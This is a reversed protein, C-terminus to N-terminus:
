RTDDGEQGRAAGPKGPSGSRGHSCPHRQSVPSVMQGKGYLFFLCQESVSGTLSYGTAAQVYRRLNPDPLVRELFKEWALCTAKPDHSVSLVTTLLDERRHERMNGTKLDLTGNQCNLFWPHANLDQYPVHITWSDPCNYARRVSPRMRLLDLLDPAILRRRRLHKARKVVQSM